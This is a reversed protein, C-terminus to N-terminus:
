RLSRWRIRACTQLVVVCMVSKVSSPLLPTGNFSQSEIAVMGRGNMVMSLVSNGFDPSIQDDVQTGTTMM